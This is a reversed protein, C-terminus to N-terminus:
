TAEDVSENTVVKFEDLRIEMIEPDMWRPLESKGEKSSLVFSRLRKLINAEDGGNNSIIKMIVRARNYDNHYINISLLRLEIARMTESGLEMLTSNDYWADLLQSSVAENLCLDGNNFVIFSTKDICGLMDDITTWYYHRNDTGFPTREYVHLISVFLLLGSIVCLYLKLRLLM